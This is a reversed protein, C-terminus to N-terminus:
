RNSYMPSPARVGRPTEHRSWCRQLTGASVQQQLLALIRVYIWCRARPARTCAAYMYIINYYYPEIDRVGSRTGRARSAALAGDERKKSASGTAVFSDM